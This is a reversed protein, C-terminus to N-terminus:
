ADIWSFPIGPWRGIGGLKSAPKLGWARYFVPCNPNEDWLLFYRRFPRVGWFTAEFPPQAALCSQSQVLRRHGGRKASVVPYRNQWPIAHKKHSTCQTSSPSPPTPSTRPYSNTVDSKKPSSLFERKIRAMCPSEPHKKGRTIRNFVMTQNVCSRISSISSIPRAECAFGPGCFFM